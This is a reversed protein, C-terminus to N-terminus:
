VGGNGRRRRLADLESEVEPIAEVLPRGPPLAGRPGSSGTLKRKLQDLDDVVASGELARFKSELNDPAVLMTAAEAASEMALVKDEMKEFAAVASSTSLGAVMDSIAAASKASQARAKLTDKKMKAEALKNELVRMNGILTDVAKAQQELQQKLMTANDQFSKRRTLAERALEEDGKSLALEARRYWDDALRQADEYKAQLRKQSATVEAAGQRLKILDAQMDEVAQDLIKEPDELSSVASSAYSKIVRVLRSFLNAEVPPVGAARRAVPRAPAHLLPAGRLSRRQTGRAFQSTRSAVPAALM